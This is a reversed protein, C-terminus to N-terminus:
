SEQTSCQKIKGSLDTLILPLYVNKGIYDIAESVFGMGKEADLGPHATGIRRIDGAADQNILSGSSNLKMQLLDRLLVLLLQLMDIVRQKNKAANAAASYDLVTLISGNLSSCLFNFADKRASTFNEGDMAVAQALSGGALRSILPATDKSTGYDHVLAQRIDEESLRDFRITQCRSRITDIIKGPARTTLIIMTHPPPEELLKLLSGAAEATLLDAQSIVFVRHEADATKFMALQKLERIQDITIVPLTKLDPAYDLPEFLNNIKSVAKEHIIKAYKDQSFSQPRGPVPLVLRFSPHGLALVKQCESCTGCAWPSSNKCLLRMTVHLAAADKGVGPQGHFLYAHAARDQRLSRDLIELARKQGYMKVM